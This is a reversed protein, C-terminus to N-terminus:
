RSLEEDKKKQNVQREQAGSIITRLQGLIKNKEAGTRARNFDGVLADIKAWPLKSGSVGLREAAMSLRDYSDKAMRGAKDSDNYTKDPATLATAHGTRPGYGAHSYSDQEAHLYSGLDATAGSAEFAAWMVDRREATTFHYDRRADYGASASTSPNDDVGQDARAIAAANTADFGVAMALVETLYRHVDEEYLGNRDVFRLPNNLTYAYRNLTQPNAPRYTQLLPDTTTFRGLRSSSYRAGFYDLGTENDREKGTFLRKDQPPTPPAVEEGFPMFDHRAVVQWTGNVQKTVARVSGLADASYYEIVQTPIQALASAPVVLMATLLLATASFRALV